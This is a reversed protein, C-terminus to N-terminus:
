MVKSSDQERLQFTSNQRGNRKDTRTVFLSVATLVTGEAVLTKVAM